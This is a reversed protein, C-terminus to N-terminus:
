NITKNIIDCFLNDLAEKMENFCVNYIEFTGGFPDAVNTQKNAYELLLHIKEESEPSYQLIQNKHGDTMTIILDANKILDMSLQTSKYDRIDIEYNQMVQVSQQSPMFDENAFLGASSITIDKKNANKCLNKFYGEAMPSRCTNGTCVFIINM